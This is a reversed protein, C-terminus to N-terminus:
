NTRTFYSALEVQTSWLFQGVPHLQELFFGAAALKAADRAWSVPNCSIYVVREVKSKAIQIVQEKAGSRPPDIIVAETGNLDSPLLPNRYLDRHVADIPLRLSADRCAQHPASMAEVAVVRASGCLGFSFTGLGSFLDAITSTDGIWLRADNVLTNEGDQTAQLFSGPPFGVAHGSLNVTVPEPEWITEPGYGQDITLRALGNSSAFDVTTEILRLNSLDLNKLSCDVGQDIKSLSVEVLSKIGINSLFDRLKPLISLFESAMVDCNSLNIIKNSRLASFGLLVGNGTPIAKLTARRRTNPKSLHVPLLNGIPINNKTAQFTIRDSVFAKLSNENIHQLQCGGCEGFHFCSPDAANPGKVVSGDPLVTDGPATGPLHVGESTVGDGRAAIRVIQSTENM